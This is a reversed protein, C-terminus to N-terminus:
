IAPFQSDHESLQWLCIYCVCVHVRGFGGDFVVVSLITVSAYCNLRSISDLRECRVSQMYGLMFEGRLKVDRVVSASSFLSLSIIM